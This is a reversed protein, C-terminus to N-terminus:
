TVRSTQGVRWYAYAGRSWPNGLWADLVAKGNWLRAVGPLVPEIQPLFRRASAGPDASVFASAADGGLYDALIGARGATATTPRRRSGSSSSQRSIM